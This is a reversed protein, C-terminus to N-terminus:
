ADIEINDILRTQGLWVAALAHTPNQATFDDGNRCTCYDIRDFGAELLKTHANTETIKSQALETLIQNLQIAVKYENDNLYINRSSLALGNKDRKTEVGIIDIASFYERAMARTVQLQQFDKEGMMVFDPQSLTFMRHLVTVVGDFFHPRHEGELLKGSVKATHTIELGNPYIDQTQPLWVYEIGISKLKELDAELTAPYKELDEGAAFQTPNLFIYPLCIDAQKIGEKVLALHGEHLAGMTPVLTITKDKLSNQFEKLAALTKILRM